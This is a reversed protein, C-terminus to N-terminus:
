VFSLLAFGSYMFMIFFDQSFKCYVTLDLYFSMRCEACKKKYKKIQTFRTLDDILQVCFNQVFYATLFIVNLLIWLLIVFLNVSVILFVLMIHTQGLFTNSNNKHKKCSMHVSLMQCWEFIGLFYSLSWLALWVDRQWCFGCFVTLINLCVPPCTLVVSMYFVLLPSVDHDACFWDTFVGCIVSM